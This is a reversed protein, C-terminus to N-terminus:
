KNVGSFIEIWRTKLSLNAPPTNNNLWPENLYKIYLDPNKDLLIIQDMLNSLDLKNFLTNMKLQRGISRLKRQLRDKPSKYFQPLIDIFNPQSVKELFHVLRLDNPKIFDTANLFSKTNFVENINPDGCYIPLSKCIMADYLKETQYGPYVYNEFAITFKYSSIFSRKVSWMDGTNMNDISVMNNMSRGPSDIKKYKSLQKFFEERYPIQNSYLFNCFLTKSALIKEADWNIKILNQPDVGHWQIRKYKPSKIEEERPVGFAWECNTLDPTINECYYGIRTYNGKAPIDNGYPGFIIFDPNESEEFNYLFTLDCIDFVEKKFTEFSLGNQLRIKILQKSL